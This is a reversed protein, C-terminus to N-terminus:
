GKKPQSENKQVKSKVAADRRKNTQTALRRQAKCTDCQGCHGCTQAM